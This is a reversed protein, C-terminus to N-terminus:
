FFFHVRAVKKEEEILNNTCNNEEETLTLSDYSFDIDKVTYYVPMAIANCMIAIFIM